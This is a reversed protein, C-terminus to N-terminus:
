DVVAARVDGLVAALRLELARREKADVRATELYIYSERAVGESRKTTLATLTGDKHRTVGLVPHILRDIAIGAAALAAAVSDVLFPMDDNVIAVRMALREGTGSFSDVAINAVGAKRQMANALVYAAAEQCAATDFGDNEGPLAGAAM